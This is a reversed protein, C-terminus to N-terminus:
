VTHTYTHTLKYIHTHPCHISLLVRIILDILLNNNDYIVLDLEFVLRLVYACPCAFVCMCAYVYVYMHLFMCVYTLRAIALELAASLEIDVIM